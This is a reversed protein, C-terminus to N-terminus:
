KVFGRNISFIEKTVVSPVDNTITASEFKTSSEHDQQIVQAFEQTLKQNYKDYEERLMEMVGFQEFRTEMQSKYLAYQTSKRYKEGFIVLMTGGFLVTGDPLKGNLCTTGDGFSISGLGRLRDRNTVTVTDNMGEILMKETLIKGNVKIKKLFCFMLDMKMAVRHCYAEFYDAYEKKKPPPSQENPVMFRSNKDLFELIDQNDAENIFELSRVEKYYGIYLTTLGDSWIDEQILRRYLEKHPLNAFSQFDKVIKEKFM